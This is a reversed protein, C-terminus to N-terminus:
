CVCFWIEKKGDPYCVTIQLINTDAALWKDNVIKAYSPVRLKLNESYVDTPESMDEQDAFRFKIKSLDVDANLDDFDYDVSYIYLDSMESAWCYYVKREFDSNYVIITHFGTEEAIWKVDPDLEVGEPLYLTISGLRESDIYNQCIVDSLKIRDIKKGDCEDPININWNIDESGLNVCLYTLSDEGTYTYCSTRYIDAYRNLNYAM